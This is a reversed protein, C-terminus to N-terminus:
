TKVGTVESIGGTVVGASFSGRVEEQGRVEGGCNSWNETTKNTQGSIKEKRDERLLCLSETPLSQM